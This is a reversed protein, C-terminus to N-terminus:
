SCGNLYGHTGLVGTLAQDDNNNSSSSSSNSSGLCPELRKSSMAQKKMLAKLLQELERRQQASTMIGGM